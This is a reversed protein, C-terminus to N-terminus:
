EFHSMDRLDSLRYEVPLIMLAKMECRQAKVAFKKGTILFPQHRRDSSQRTSSNYFPTLDNTEAGGM